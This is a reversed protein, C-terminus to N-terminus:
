LILQIKHIEVVPYSRAAPTDGSVAGDLQVKFNLFDELIHKFGKIYFATEGDILFKYQIEKSAIAKQPQIYGKVSVYAADDKTEKPIEKFRAWIKRQEIEAPTAPQPKEASVPSADPEAHPEAKSEAPRTSAQKAQAGQRSGETQPSLAAQLRKELDTIDDDTQTTTSEVVPRIPGKVKVSPKTRARARAIKIQRRYPDVDKSQFNVYEEAIWGYTKPVPRIRLWGDEKDMVVVEDGENLQGIVNHRPGPGSRINLRNATIIGQDDRAMLVYDQAVYSKAKLPLEIKYWSYSKDVVVVEDGAQMKLLSEFNESRGSRVHVRDGTIKGLFPYFEQAARVGTCLCILVAGGIPLYTSLARSLHIKRTRMNM